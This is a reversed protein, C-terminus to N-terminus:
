LDIRPGSRAADDAYLRELDKGILRRIDDDAEEAFEQYHEVFREWLEAKRKMPLIQSLGKTELKKELKAPDFAKLATKMSVQVGDVLAVQHRQLAKVADEVAAVGSLYGTADPKLLAKVAGGADRVFKLPNAGTEIQTAGLGLAIKVDRRSELLERMGDALARFSRGIEAATEPRKDRPIDDLSIGLAAFLMALAKESQDDPARSGPPLTVPRHEEVAPPPSPDPRPKQAPGALDAFPDEGDDKKEVAFLDDGPAASAPGARPPAPEPRPPPTDDLSLVDSMPDPGSAVDQTLFAPDGRDPADDGLLDLDDSGSTAAAQERSRKLADVGWFDETDTPAEDPHCEVEIRVHGGGLYLTETQSIPSPQGHVLRNGPSGVATGNQSFDTLLISGERAQLSCHRRSLLRAQDSIPWDCAADRGIVFEGGDELTVTKLAGDTAEADGSLRLVVRLPM